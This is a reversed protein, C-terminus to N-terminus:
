TCAFLWGEGALIGLQTGGLKRLRSTEKVKGDQRLTRRGGRDFYASWLLVCRFVLLRYVVIGVSKVAVPRCM